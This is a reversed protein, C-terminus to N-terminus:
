NESEIEHGQMKEAIYNADDSVGYILASSRKSQWSVGIFYLGVVNTVGFHHLPKGHSNLIGDIQIWSYDNRYGTAWIVNQVQKFIDSNFYANGDKIEKLRDVIEVNNQVTKYDNGILPERERLM